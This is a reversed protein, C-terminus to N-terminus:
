PLRGSRSADALAARLAAIEEDIETEDDAYQGIVARLHRVFQRKATILANSAQASSRFGLRAVLEAYPVVASGGLIPGLLRAEFVAWIEERGSALCEARMNAVAAALVERAWAVDLARSPTDLVPLDLGELSRPSKEPSRKRAAEWRERDVIYNHLAALLFTRFKGRRRDARAILEEELVKDAVFAQLIDEARDAPIGRQIVLHARLAPLYRRLLQGLAKRRAADGGLGALAVQSWHTTPFPRIEIEEEEM